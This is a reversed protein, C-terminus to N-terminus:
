AEKFKKRFGALSIFGTALLLITAPEPVPENFTFNDLVFYNADEYDNPSLAYIGAPTGGFATFILEDIDYYNFQFWELNGFESIISTDYLVVDDKRGVVNISLDDKYEGALYAGNFTFNDSSISAQAAWGNFIANDGSVPPCWQHTAMDAVRFINWTLGGYSDPLPATDMFGSIDDFTLVTAGVTGAMGLAILLIVVSAVLKKIMMM